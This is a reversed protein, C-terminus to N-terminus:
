SSNSSVKIIVLEAKDDKEWKELYEALLSVQKCCLFFFFFSLSAQNSYFFCSSICLFSELFQVFDIHTLNISCVVKSSIVNLQRPRNLTILRM